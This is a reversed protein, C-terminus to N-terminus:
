QPKGTLERTPQESHSLDMPVGFRFPWSSKRGKGVTGFGQQRNESLSRGRVPSKPVSKWSRPRGAEVQHHRKRTVQGPRRRVVAALLWSAGAMYQFGRFVM